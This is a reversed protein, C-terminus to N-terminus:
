PEFVFSMGIPWALYTKAPLAASGSFLPRLITVDNLMTCLTASLGDDFM